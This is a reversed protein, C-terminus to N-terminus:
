APERQLLVTRFGPVPDFPTSPPMRYIDLLTLLSANMPQYTMVERKSALLAPYEAQVTLGARAFHIRTLGYGHGWNLTPLAMFLSTLFSNPWLM